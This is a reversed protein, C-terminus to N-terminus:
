WSLIYYQLTATGKSELFRSRAARRALALPLRHRYNQHRRSRRKSGVSPHGINHRMM